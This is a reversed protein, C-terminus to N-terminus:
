ARVKNKIKQTKHTWQIRIKHNANEKRKSINEKKNKNHQKKCTIADNRTMIVMAGVWRPRPWKRVQRRTWWM